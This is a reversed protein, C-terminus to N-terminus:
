AAEEAPPEIKVHQLPDVSTIPKPLPAFPEPKTEDSLAVAEAITMQPTVCGKGIARMLGNMARRMMDEHEASFEILVEANLLNDLQAWQNAIHRREILALKRLSATDPRWTFNHPQKPNLVVSEGRYWKRLAAEVAWVPVDELAIMYSEGTAEVGIEDTRQAPKAKMMKTILALMADETDIRHGNIVIESHNEPTQLLMAQLAKHAPEVVARESPSLMSSKPLTMVSRYRGTTPDRQEAIKAADVRSTLWAPWSLIQEPRRVDPLPIPELRALQTGM